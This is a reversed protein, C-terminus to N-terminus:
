LLENLSSVDVPRGSAYNSRLSLGQLTRLRHEGKDLNCCYTNCASNIGRAYQSQPALSSSFQYEKVKFVRIDPARLAPKETILLVEAYTVACEEISIEFRSVM